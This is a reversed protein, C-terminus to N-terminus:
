LITNFVKYQSVMHQLERYNGNWVHQLIPYNKSNEFAETFAQVNIGMAQLYVAIDEPRDRLPITELVFSSIRWYLDDRFNKSGRLDKKNTAAVVRVSIKVANNSGIAMVEGEQLVRLLKAQMHLPLEAIEDLFITGDQAAVFLGEKDREAGTFSGKVHGFLISDVIHEPFGGCNISVFRGSRENHLARALLEKGTGTEGLILVPYALPALKKVRTKLEMMSKNQTLLKNLQSETGRVSLIDEVPKADPRKGYISNVGSGIKAQPKIGNEQLLKNIDENNFM